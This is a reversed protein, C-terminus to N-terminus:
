IKSLIYEKCIKPFESNELEKIYSDTSIFDTKLKFDNKDTDWIIYNIEGFTKRNLGLSGPNILYFNNLKRCYMQHSHGIILNQNINIETDKFIYREGITHLIKFDLIKYSDGYNSITNFYEYRKINHDFFTKEIINKGESKGNLFNHEHNGKIKIFNEQTELLEVCENSWPGFNVVDGLSILLDIDKNKTLCYELAPLNGHIDSLLLIRM